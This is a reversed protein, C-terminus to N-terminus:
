GYSKELRELQQRVPALSAHAPLAEAFRALARELHEHIRERGIPTLLARLRRLLPDPSSGSRVDVLSATLSGFTRADPEASLWAWPWTPKGQVLDEHGKHRRRDNTVSSLDDLMQLAVGVDRGFRTAADVIEPTAGAAIAGLAAALAVLGGTKLESIAQAAPLVEEAALDELRTSLDLAQGYHCERLARTVARHSAARADAAMPVRELLDLAWFYMWSGGNLAAPMGYIRHLAPLGRREESDDEIDDIVLSGAHLAEISLALEPPLANKGGALRYIAFAFDGRMAKGPRALFDRLPEYLAKSWLRWPVSAAAGSGLRDLSRQEFERDLLAALPEEQELAAAAETM